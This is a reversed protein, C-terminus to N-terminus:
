LISWEVYAYHGHNKNKSSRRRQTQWQPIPAPQTLTYVKKRMLIGMLTASLSKGMSWSELPTHLNIGEGYKEAIIKGKYTVIFAATLGDPVFAADIAQNVKKMDVETPLDSPLVDGMPWPTTAANPLNSKSKEPVFYLKDVGEPLCICGQGDTYIATRSKGNPLTISVTKKDYDIFPKSVKSREEYPATFYGVNEAAFEPSLGTIFVASCMIKAYGATHLSLPDGPPAKYPTNLQLQKARVLMKTLLDPSSEQANVLLLDNFSFAILLIIKLGIKM